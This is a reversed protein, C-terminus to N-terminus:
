GRPCIAEGGQTFRGIRQASTSVDGQRGPWPFIRGSAKERIFVETKGPLSTAPITNRREPLNTTWVTHHFVVSMKPKKARLNSSKRAVHRIELLLRASLSLHGTTTQM